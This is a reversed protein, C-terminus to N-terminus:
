HNKFHLVYMIPLSFREGPEPCDYVALCRMSADPKRIHQECYFSVYFTCFSHIFNRSQAQFFVVLQNQKKKKKEPVYMSLIGESEEKGM